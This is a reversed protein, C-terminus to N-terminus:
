NKNSKQANKLNEIESQLQEVLAAQKATERDAQRLQAQYSDRIEREKAIVAKEVALEEQAKATEMRRSFDSEMNKRENEFSKTLASLEHEKDALQNQISSLSESLQAYKDQLEKYAQADAEMSSMQRILLDNSASKEASITRADDRERLAQDRETNAREIEIAADKKVSQIEANAQTEAAVIKEQAQAIAADAADSKTKAAEIQVSATEIATRKEEIAKELKEKLEQIQSDQGAVIGNIQKILTGITSDVARLSPELAPHTGRVSEKEAVSLIRLLTDEKKDGEQSYLEMVSNAKEITELSAAVAFNAM